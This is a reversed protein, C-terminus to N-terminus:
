VGLPRAAPAPKKDQRTMWMDILSGAQTLVVLHICDMICVNVCEAVFRRAVSSAVVVSWLECDNWTSSEQGEMLGVLGSLYDGFVFPTLVSGPAFALVKSRSNLALLAVEDLLLLVWMTRYCQNCPM